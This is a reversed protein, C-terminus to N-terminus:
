VAYLLYTGDAVEIKKERFLESLYAEIKQNKTRNKHLFAQVSRLRLDSGVLVEGKSLGKKLEMGEKVEVEACWSPLPRARATGTGGTPTPNM